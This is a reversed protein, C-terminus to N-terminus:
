KYKQLCTVPNTQKTSHFKGLPQSGARGKGGPIRRVFRLKKCQFATTPDGEGWLRLYIHKCVFLHHILNHLAEVSFNQSLAPFALMLPLLEARGDTPQCTVLHLFNGTRFVSPYRQNFFTLIVRQRRRPSYGVPM